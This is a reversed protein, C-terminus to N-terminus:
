FLHICMHTSQRQEIFTMTMCLFRLFVGSLWCFDWCSLCTSLASTRKAGWLSLLELFSSRQQAEEALAVKWRIEISLNWSVLKPPLDTSRPAWQITCFDLHLFLPAFQTHIKIRKWILFPICSIIQYYRIRWLCTQCVVQIYCFGTSVGHISDPYLTKKKTSGQQNAPSFRHDGLTILFVSSSLPAAFPSLDKGWQTWRKQLSFNSIQFVVWICFRWSSIPVSM